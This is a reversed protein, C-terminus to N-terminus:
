KLISTFYLIKNFVFSLDVSLSFVVKSRFSFPYILLDLLRDVKSTEEDRDILFNVDKPVEKIVISNTGNSFSLYISKYEFKFDLLM